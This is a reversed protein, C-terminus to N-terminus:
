AWEYARGLGYAARAFTERLKSPASFHSSIKGCDVGGGDTRAL